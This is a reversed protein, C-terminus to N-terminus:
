TYYVGRVLSGSPYNKSSTHTNRIRIRFETDFGYLGDSHLIAASDTNTYNSAGVLRPTSANAGGVAYLPFESDDIVLIAGMQADAIYFYLPGLVGKGSVTIIDIYSDGPISVAPSQSHNIHNATMDWLNGSSQPFTQIGM